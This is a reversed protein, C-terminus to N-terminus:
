KNVGPPHAPERLLFQGTELNAMQHIIAQREAQGALNVRLLGDVAAADRYGQIRGLFLTDCRELARKDVDAPRQTALIRGWAKNRGIAFARLVAQSCSASQGLYEQCEELILLLNRAGSQWLAGVIDEVAETTSGWLESTDVCVKGGRKVEAVIWALITLKTGPVMRSAYDVPLRVVTVGEVEELRRALEGGPDVGLVGLGHAGYFFQELATTKGAGPGALFGIARANLNKMGGVDLSSAAALM